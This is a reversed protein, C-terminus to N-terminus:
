ESIRPFFINKKKKRESHILCIYKNGIRSPTPLWVDRIPRCIEYVRLIEFIKDGNKKTLFFNKKKKFLFCMFILLSNRRHYGHIMRTWGFTTSQSKGIRNIESHVCGMGIRGVAIRELTCTRTYYYIYIFM